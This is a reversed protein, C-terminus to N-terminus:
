ESLYQQVLYQKLSAAEGSLSSIEKEAQKKDAEAQKKNNEAQQLKSTATEACVQTASMVSVLCMCLLVVVGKHLQRM